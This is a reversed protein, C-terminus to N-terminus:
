DKVGRNIFFPTVPMFEKALENVKPVVSDFKVLEKLIMENSM